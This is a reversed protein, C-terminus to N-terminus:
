QNHSISIKTQKDGVGSVLIAKEFLQDVIFFDKKLRYNVLAEEGENIALLVPAESTKMKTPMQIYTKLGDNFVRKPKWVAKGEITYDFNLSEADFVVGHAEIENHKKRKLDAAKQKALHAEWLKAEQAPYRFSIMPTYNHDRRSQLLIMYTRRDTVIALNTTLNSDYPKVFIHPASEPGNGTSPTVEWQGSDGWQPKELIKEGPELKIVCVRLPRCVLTPLTVGFAYSVSGDKPDLIPDVKKDRWGNSLKVAEWAKRGLKANKKSIVIDRFDVEEQKKPSAPKTPPPLVVPPSSALPKGLPPTVSKEYKEVVPPKAKIEAPIPPETSDAFGINPSFTLLTATVILEHIRIM